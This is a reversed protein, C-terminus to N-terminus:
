AGSPEVGLFTGMPGAVPQPDPAAPPDAVERLARAVDPFGAPVEGSGAHRIRLGPVWGGMRPAGRTTDGRAMWELAALVEGRSQAVEEWADVAEAYRGDESALRDTLTATIAERNETVASEVASAATATAKELAAVRRKAQHIAEDAKTTHVEGPDKRGAALAKAYADADANVAAPRAREATRLEAKAADRQEIMHAHHEAARTIAPHEIGAPVNM